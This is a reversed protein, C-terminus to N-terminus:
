IYQPTIPNGPLRTTLIDREWRPPRPEIGRRPPDKKTTKGDNKSAPNNSKNKKLRDFSM